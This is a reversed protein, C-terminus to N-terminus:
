PEMQLIYGDSGRAYCSNRTNSIGSTIEPSVFRLDANSDSSNNFILSNSGSISFNANTYSRIYASTTSSVVISSFSSPLEPAVLADFAQM